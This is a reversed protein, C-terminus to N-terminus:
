DNKFFIVFFCVLLLSFIPFLICSLFFWLPINFVYIPFYSLYASLLWWIFLFLYIISAFFVKNIM